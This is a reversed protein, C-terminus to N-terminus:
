KEEKNLLDLAELIRLQDKAYQENPEKKFSKEFPLTMIVDDYSAYAASHGSWIVFNLGLLSGTAEIGKVAEIFDKGLDANYKADEKGYITFNGEQFLVKLDEIDSPLDVPKESKINIIYRGEFHADNKFSTYKGVFASVRNRGSGSYLGLDAVKFSKNNFKGNVVNRSAINNLNLYIADTMPDSLEIKESKDITCDKYKTDKFNRENLEKNVLAIYAKTANPMSNRTFIYYFIMGVVASGILSWGTIKLAMQKFGILIISAVAVVMVVGMMIYSMRRSKKYDKQFNVRATEIVEEYDQADPLPKEIPQGKPLLKDLETSQQEQEEKVETEQLEKNEEQYMYFGESELLYLM